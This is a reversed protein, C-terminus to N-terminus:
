QLVSPRRHAHRGCILDQGRIEHRHRGHCRQQAHYRQKEEQRSFDKNVPYVLLANRRILTSTCAYHSKAKLGLFVNNLGFNRKEFWIMIQYFKFSSASYSFEPASVKPSSTVQPSSSVQSTHDVYRASHM